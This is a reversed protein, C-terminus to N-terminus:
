LVKVDGASKQEVSYVGQLANQLQRVAPFQGSMGFFIELAESYKKTRYYARALEVLLLPDNYEIRNKNSKDRGAELFTLAKQWDSRRAYHRGLSLNIGASGWGERRGALNEAAALIEGCGSDITDCILVAEAVLRPDSSNERVTRTLLDFGEKERGEAHLAGARIMKATVMQPAALQEGANNLSDIAALSEAAMGMQAYAMGLYLGAAGSMNRANFAKGLLDISTKGYLAALGDLLRISYFRITKNEGLKEEDAFAKMDLDRVLELAKDLQGARTYVGICNSRVRMPGPDGSRGASSLAQDCVGSPERNWLGAEAFASALESLVEPDSSGAVSSWLKEARGERGLLFNALGLGARAVDRESTAAGPDNAVEQYYSAARDPDQGAMLVEAMYLNALRSRDRGRHSSVKGLYNLSVDISLDHLEGYLRASNLCSIGLIMHAKGSESAEVSPLDWYLSAADQYRNAKLHTVAREVPSGSARGPPTAAIIWMLILFLRALGAGNVRM